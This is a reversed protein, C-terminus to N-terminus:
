APMALAVQRDIWGAAEITAVHPRDAATALGVRVLHERGLLAHLLAMPLLEPELAFQTRHEALAAAKRELWTLDEVGILETRAHHENNGAHPQEDLVHAEQGRGDFATPAQASLVLCTVTDQAVVSAEHRQDHALAREGFFEGPGLRRCVHQTGGADEHIIEVHGSVILYLNCASEGQEVIQFGAPFWQTQVADDAYRLETAEQALLALARVFAASGRFDSGREVLWRATERCIMGHQAPFVSYYLRPASGDERALLHCAQTTAAGIAVHDPHGTAGDPGFTVVVDPAFARIRRAIEQVLAAQDVDGLTGDGYDLCEVHRVGLQACAARLEHERVAGLNARTAARPDQIQGAEGRTASLVLAEGGRAVWRALTVGACFVEDDPHAFIGMIRAPRGLNMPQLNM